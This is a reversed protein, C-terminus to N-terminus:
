LTLEIAMILLLIILFIIKLLLLLIPLLWERTLVVQVVVVYCFLSYFFSHYVPVLLKGDMNKQTNCFGLSDDAIRCMRGCLYCQVAKETSSNGDYLKTYFSSEKMMFVGSLFSKM